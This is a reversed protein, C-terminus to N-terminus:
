TDNNTCKKTFTRPKKPHSTKQSRFHDNKELGFGKDEICKKWPGPLKKLGEEYFEMPDGQGMPQRGM